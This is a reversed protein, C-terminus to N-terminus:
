EGDPGKAGSCNLSDKKCRRRRSEDDPGKASPAEESDKGLTGQHGDQVEDVNEPGQLVCLEIDSHGSLNFVDRLHV